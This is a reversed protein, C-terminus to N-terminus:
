SVRTFIYNRASINKSIRRKTSHDKLENLSLDLEFQHCQLIEKIEIFQDISNIEILLSRLSESNLINKMGLIIDREKGDVDIKIYNPIPINFISVLDDLSSCLVKQTLVPKFNEGNENVAAGLQAGSNGIRSDSIYLDQLGSFNSIAINLPNINLKHNLVVNNQLSNFNNHVPEFSYICNLRSKLAAYLSYIGINAGIDYMISAHNESSWLNIWEITEPEKDLLSNVRYSELENNVLFDIGCKNIIKTM